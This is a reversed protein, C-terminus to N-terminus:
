VNVKFAIADDDRASLRSRLVVFVARHRHGVREPFQQEANLGLLRVLCLAKDTWDFVRFPAQIRSAAFKPKGMERMVIKAVEERRRANFRAHINWCNAFPKSVFVAPRQRHFNISVQPLFM